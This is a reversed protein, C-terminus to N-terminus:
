VSSSIFLRSQQTQITRILLLRMEDIFVSCFVKSLKIETPKDGKTINKQIKLIGLDLLMLYVFIYCRSFGTANSIISLQAWDRENPYFYLPVLNQGEEQYEKKWKKSNLLSLKYELEPDCLLKYLYWSLRKGKLSRPKMHMEIFRAGVLLTSQSSNEPASITKVIKM